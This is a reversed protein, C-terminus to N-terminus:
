NVAEAGLKYKDWALRFDESLTERPANNYMHAELTKQNVIVIDYENKLEKNESFVTRVIEEHEKHGDVSEKSVTITFLMKGDSNLACVEVTSPYHTYAFVFLKKKM